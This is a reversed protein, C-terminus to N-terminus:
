ALGRLAYLLINGSVFVHLALAPVTVWSRHAYRFWHYAVVVTFVMWILFAILVIVPAIATLDGLNMPGSWGFLPPFAQEFPSTTPSM